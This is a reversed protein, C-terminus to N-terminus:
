FGERWAGTKGHPFNTVLIGLVGPIASQLALCPIPFTWYKGRSCGKFSFSNASCCVVRDVVSHDSYNERLILLRM